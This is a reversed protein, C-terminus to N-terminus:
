RQRLVDWDLILNEELIDTKCCWVYVIDANIMSIHLNRNAGMTQIFNSVQSNIWFQNRRIDIKDATWHLDVSRRWWVIFVRDQFYRKLGVNEMPPKIVIRFWCMEVNWRRWRCFVVPFLCCTSGNLEGVTETYGQCNEVNWGIFWLQQRLVDLHSRGLEETVKDNSKTARSSRKRMTRGLGALPISRERICWREAVVKTLLHM